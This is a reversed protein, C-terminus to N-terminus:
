SGWTAVSTESPSGGTVGSGIPLRWLVEGRGACICIWVTFDGGCVTAFCLSFCFRKQWEHEKEPDHDSNPNSYGIGTRAPIIFGYLM